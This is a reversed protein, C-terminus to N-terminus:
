IGCCKFNPFITNVEDNERSTIRNIVTTPQEFYKKIEDSIELKRVESEHSSHNHSVTKIILIKRV